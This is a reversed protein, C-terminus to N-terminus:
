ASRYPSGPIPTGSVPFGTEAGRRMHASTVNGVEQELVSRAEVQERSGHEALQLDDLGRQLRIRLRDVGGAGM